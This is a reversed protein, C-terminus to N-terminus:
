KFLFCLLLVGMMVAIAYLMTQITHLHALLSAPLTQDGTTAGVKRKMDMGDFTLRLCGPLGVWPRAGLMM